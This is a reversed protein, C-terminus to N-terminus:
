LLVWIDMELLSDGQDATILGTLILSIGARGGEWGM